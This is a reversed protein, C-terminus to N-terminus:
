KQFVHIERGIKHREGIDVLSTVKTLKATLTTDEAFHERRFLLVTEFGITHAKEQVDFTVSQGTRTKVYPTVLALRGNPKLVKHAEQIFDTYLPKLKEIIKKAYAETPLHKLAPGLDPETAICDIAEQQIRNTLKRSDGQILTYNANQIAYEKTLWELNKQAAEICWPNIDVGIAQTKALLAEQLITGVGCFPDLFVKRETCQALNIMIGALRPPMAFIKRQVPKNIDRKQFEFPDHVAMTTATLTQKTGICLLIEANNEILGKKLVEVHSLQAQKRDKPFGMFRSKKHHDALEDKLTSGLFRHITRSVRNLRPEQCYVSVGFVLKASVSRLMGDILCSQSVHEKLGQQAQKDSRLFADEVTQTSVTTVVKGIKITGGLNDIVSRDLARETTLVFFVDAFQLIKFRHQQAELFSTLEALSLKWNKGSIFVYKNEEISHM